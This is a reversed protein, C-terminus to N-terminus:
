RQSDVKLDKSVQEVFTNESKDEVPTSGTFIFGAM